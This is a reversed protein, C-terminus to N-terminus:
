SPRPITQFVKVIRRGGSGAVENVTIVYNLLEAENGRVIALIMAFSRFNYDPDLVINVLTELDGRSPRPLDIVHTHWEGVYDAGSKAFEENLIRQCYSTDRLFGCQSRKSNPGADTARVILIESERNHGILIGGTEAGSSQAATARLFSTVEPPVVLKVASNSATEIRKPYYKVPKKFSM